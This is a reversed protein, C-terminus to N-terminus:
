VHARGIQGTFAKGCEQCEYPKEGTHTRMHVRLYCSRTFAKGCTPCVFPKEGTHTRLHATLYSSSAFAKGCEYCGYPKEGTHSRLHESLRSSTIFAKGCEKCEYLKEGTNSQVHTTVGSPEPFAKGCEKWESSKKGTDNQMHNNLYFPYMFLKGCEEYESPKETTQTQTPVAQTTSDTFAKGSQELDSPKEESPTPGHAQLQSQSIFPQDYDSCEDSRDQIRRRQCVDSTLSFPKEYQILTSLKDGVSSKWHPPLFHEGNRNCESSNGTNETRMPIQIGTDKGSVTDYQNSDCLHGEHHSRALEIDNSTDSGFIAPLHATGKTNFEWEQLVGQEGKTLELEEELWSILSPKFLQCGPLLKKPM